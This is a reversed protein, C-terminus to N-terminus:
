EEGREMAMRGCEGRIMVDIRRAAGDVHGGFPPSAHSGGWGFTPEGDRRRGLVM